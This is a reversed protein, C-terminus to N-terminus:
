SCLLCRLQLHPLCHELPPVLLTPSLATLHQPSLNLIPYLAWSSHSLCRLLILGRSLIAPGFCPLSHKQLSHILYPNVFRPLKTSPLSLLLRLVTCIAMPLAPNWFTSAAVASNLTQTSGACPPPVIQNLTNSISCSLISTRHPAM